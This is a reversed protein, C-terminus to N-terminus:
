GRAALIARVHARDRPRLARVGHELVQIAADRRRAARGLRAEVVARRRAVLLDLPEGGYAPGTSHAGAHRLRVDRHLVTPVGAAGARLGLDLDEYFLFAAPDFPGLRELTARRAVLAAAIAWAVSREGIARRMPGPTVARALDRASGPRPHASDQASGDANLLRPAHLADAARAATALALLGDDLLEVDPNLLAVVDHQARAVGANNAAGFGPNDPLDVLEAGHARAVAAGDDASGTDVVILQPGTHLHADISALLRGLDPASDHIVTVVSLSM